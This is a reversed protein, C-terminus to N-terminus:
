GIQSAKLLKRLDILIQNGTYTKDYWLVWNGHPDILVVGLDQMATYVSALRANLTQQAQASLSYVRLSADNMAILQATKEPLVTNILVADRTLRHANKGLALQLKQMVSLRQICQLQCSNNIFVLLKWQRSHAIGLAQQDVHQEFLTGINTNGQPVYQPNYYFFWGVFIPLLSMAIIVIIQINKKM